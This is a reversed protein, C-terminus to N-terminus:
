GVRTISVSSFSIPQLLTQGHGVEGVHRLGLSASTIDRERYGRGGIECGCEHISSALVPAGTGKDLVLAGSLGGKSM